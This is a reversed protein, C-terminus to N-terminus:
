SFDGIKQEIENRKIEEKRAKNIQKKNNTKRLSAMKQKLTQENFDCKFAFCNNCIDGNMREKCFPCKM